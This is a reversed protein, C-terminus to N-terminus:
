AVAGEEVGDQILDQSDPQRAALWAPADSASVPVEVGVGRTQSNPLFVM